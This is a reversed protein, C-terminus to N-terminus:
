TIYEGLIETVNNMLIVPVLGISNIWLVTQGLIVGNTGRNDLGVLDSPVMRVVDDDIISM